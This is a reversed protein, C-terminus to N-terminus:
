AIIGLKKLEIEMKEKTYRGSLEILNINNKKCFDKKRNDHIQLSDFDWYNNVREFHQNGQFELLIYHTADKYIKFDFRLNGGNVGYLGNYSVEREYQINHEDLINIIMKEHLSTMCGCSQNNGKVISIAPFSKHKGCNLCECDWIISKISTNAYYTDGYRINEVKLYGFIKGIYKTNNYKARTVHTIRKCDLEGCSRIRGDIVKRASAPFKEHCGPCECVWGTGEGQYYNHNVDIALVKVGNIVKGIFKKDAYPGQCGCSKARGHVVKDPRYTKPESTCDCSCMWRFQDMGDIYETCFFDVTLKNFKQHLYKKDNYTSFIRNSYEINVEPLCKEEISDLRELKYKELEDIGTYGYRCTISDYVIYNKVKRDETYKAVIYRM